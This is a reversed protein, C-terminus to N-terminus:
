MSPKNTKIDPANNTPPMRPGFRLYLANLTGDTDKRYAGGVDEGVVGDELMAPKGAKTIRTESTIQITEAGVSITKATNDIAKLKGRFPLPKNSTKKVTPPTAPAAPTAPTNQARLVAPIGAAGIALLGLLTFKLMSKTM